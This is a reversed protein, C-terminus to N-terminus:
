SLLIRVVVHADTVQICGTGKFAHAPILVLLILASMDVDMLGKLASM